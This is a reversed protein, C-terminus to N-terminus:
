GFVSKWNVEPYWWREDFSTLNHWIIKPNSETPINKSIVILQYSSFYRDLLDVLKNYSSLQTPSLNSTELRVFRIVKDENVINKLEFFREVRKSLSIEFLKLNREDVLEHAMTIGYDNSVIYTPKNDDFTNHNESLKKISLKSYKNFNNELVKILSNLSVKAWDFPYAQNRLQLQKLQYAVACNSGLSIIEMILIKVLFFNGYKM